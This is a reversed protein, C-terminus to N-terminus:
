RHVRTAVVSYCMEDETGEAWTVYRNRSVPALSRDWTCDIRLTDGRHLVIHDAPSYYLQWNFDWNPIDLLIKEDPTGPNLTMRFARGLQHEHGVVGLLDGDANIRHDCSSSAVGSTMSAFDDLSKHCVAMLGNAILPATPGFQQTLQALVADRDCLPGSEGTSCPIEAPALYTQIRVPDLNGTALEMVFRSQDPPASHTYHYHIQVVILDGADMRIGSGDPYKTAAQGPAWGMIQESGRSSGTTSVGGGPGTTGAYCQWGPGPDNQDLQDVTARESGAVRFALAHHVVETRDPVFQFGTIFTTQTLKPDIVFCRYDNQNDPSGQYPEGSVPVDLDHRITVGADAPAKIPTSGDVDLRGGAAAWGAIDSIQADTLRTPHQMPVSLDSAPWPPMYRSGTVLALGSAADAADQATDLKWVQAGSGGTNHCSACSQELVPLVASSFSPGQGAGALLAQERPPATVADPVKADVATLDLKLTADDGTKVLGALSIPGVGFDSLKLQTTGTVRLEGGSRTAEADITAPRTADKVTLDGELSIPYATGDVVHDPLGTITRTTFTALPYDVSRLFDHQLRQDRLTQDSTLQQVNVVIEGVQSAAPNTDDLLIDGAIGRTSGTASHSTGALQESVEYTVSSRSADIRYVTQGPGSASLHAATPVVYSVDVHPVYFTKVAFWGAAVGCLVVALAMSSGVPHRGLWNVFRKM